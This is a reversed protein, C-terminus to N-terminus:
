EIRVVKGAFKRAEELEPDSGLDKGLVENVWKPGHNGVSRCFGELEGVPVIFLGSAELNSLLRDCAITSDGSPVFAKGVTKAHAWPSSRRLVSEISKQATKPFITDKISALLDNIERTVEATNLEPKKQDISNKLLTWDKSLSIWDLGIAGCIERIPSEANLLDFDCVVSVPVDLNKLAAIVVPMRAKGGCHLFMIHERRTEGNPDILSDMIAAYFRCDSDSECLVVKRHFLGDLVNSYRLIPDGWVERVGSNDLEKIPNVSGNRQIRVIRVRRSNSDLLGRLFDGSHTAIFLQRNSPAEKILMQGLLRAQPPHLFAEPEDILIVTHEVILSHLLVGVFSRMGDGQSHLTPLKELERLYGLSVRDEGEKPFPKKGCHLPVENGANRHVILDEDFAEKFFSSAKNELSDNVQLYHIPHTLADRTLAINPAPNATSLRADTTLHYVFFNTLEHFGDSYNQWWSKAQSEHVSTGLRTYTPNSPNALDKRSSKQLWGVLDDQTGSTSIEIEAVVKGENKKDKAKLLINKLAASKGANNPGVFVVIDDSALNITNGDSFKVSKISARPTIPAVLEDQM